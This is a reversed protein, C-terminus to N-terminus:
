GSETPQGAAEQKDKLELLKSLPTPIQGGVLGVRIGNRALRQRVEAPLHMEDVEEWLRVNAELDGAPFRASFIELVVSDSSMQPPRLTSTGVADAMHRCGVPVVVVLLLGVARQLGPM